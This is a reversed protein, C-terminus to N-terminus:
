ANATDMKTLPVNHLEIGVKSAQRRFGILGWIRTVVEIGLPLCQSIVGSLLCCKDWEPGGVTRAVWFEWNTWGSVM